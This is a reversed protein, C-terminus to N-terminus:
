PKHEEATPKGDDGPMDDFLNGYRRVVDRTVTGDPLLATYTTMPESANAKAWAQAQERTLFSVVKALAKITIKPAATGHYEGEGDVLERGVVVGNGALPFGDKRGAVRLFGQQPKSYGDEDVYLVDGTDPWHWATEIYGGVLRQLDKVDTYDVARFERATADIHIAKM